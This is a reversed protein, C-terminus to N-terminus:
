EEHTNGPPTDNRRHQQRLRCYHAWETRSAQIVQQLVQDPIGLHRGVALFANQPIIFTDEDQRQQM